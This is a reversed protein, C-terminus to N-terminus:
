KLHIIKLSFEELLQNVNHKGISLLSIVEPLGEEGRKESIRDVSVMRNHDDSINQIGHLNIGINSWNNQFRHHIQLMSQQLDPV